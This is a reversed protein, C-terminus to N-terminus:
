PRFAVVLTLTCACMTANGVSIWAAACMRQANHERLWLAMTLNAGLWTCWTLLSHQSSDRQEFIAWMTPMYGVLRLSNFLTFAWTLMLLRASRYLPKAAGITPLTAPTPLTPLRHSRNNM